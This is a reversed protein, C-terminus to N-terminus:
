RSASGPLRHPAVEALEAVVHRRLRERDDPDAVHGAVDEAVAHQEGLLDPEDGREVVAVHEDVRLRVRRREVLALAEELQRPRRPVVVVARLDGGPPPTQGRWAFDIGSDGSTRFRQAHAHVRCRRVLHERRDEPRRDIQEPVAADAREHLRRVLRVGVDAVARVVRDPDVAGVQPRPDDGFPPLRPKVCRPRMSYASAPPRILVSKM